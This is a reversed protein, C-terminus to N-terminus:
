KISDVGKGFAGNM